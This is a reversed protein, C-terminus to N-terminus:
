YLIWLPDRILAACVATWAVSVGKPEYPVFVNDYLDDLEAPTAVEGLMRLYLAGLNARIAARGASTSSDDQLTALSLVATNGPKAFATRCWAQSIPVLAQAMNSTVQPSSLKGELWHAGGLAVYLSGAQERPDQAPTEDSSRLAYADGYRADVRYPQTGMSVTTLLDAETLGLQAYLTVRIQEASKRRVQAADLPAGADPRTAPLARIWEKVETLTISTMGRQSLVEFRESPAPPMQRSAANVGIMLGVLGSADPDGPTVWKPDYVILNEFATLDLFFPRMDAVHCGGCTPKLRTYVDLNSLYPGAGGSGGVGGATGSGGTGGGSGGGGGGIFGQCQTLAVATLLAVFFRSM